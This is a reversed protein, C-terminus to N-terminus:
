WRRQGGGHGGHGGRGRKRNDKKPRAESVSLHRGKIEQSNLGAIAELGEEKEPMEVFGFGRSEGSYRDTIVTASSVNGYVEFAKRLDDDNVDKSLNGVYVNM